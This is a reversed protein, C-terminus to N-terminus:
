PVREPKGFAQALAWEIMRNIVLTRTAEGGRAIEDVRELLEPRVRISIQEGASPWPKTFSPISSM